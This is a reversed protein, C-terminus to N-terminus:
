FLYVSYKGGALVEIVRCWTPLFQRGKNSLSALIVDNKQQYVEGEYSCCVNTCVLLYVGGSNGEDTCIVVDDNVLECVDSTEPADGTTSAACYSLGSNSLEGEVRSKM